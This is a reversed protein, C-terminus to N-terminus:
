DILDFEVQDTDQCVSTVSITWGELTATEGLTIDEIPRPKGDGITATLQATDGSIGTAEISLTEGDREPLDPSASGGDVEVFYAGEGSCPDPPEFGDPAPTVPFPDRPVTASSKGGGDSSGTVVIDEGGDDSGDSSESGGAESSGGADSAEPAAPADGQDSDGADSCGAALLTIAFLAGALRARSPRRTAASIPM